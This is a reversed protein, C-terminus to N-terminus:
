QALGSRHARAYHGGGTRAGDAAVAQEGPGLRDDAPGASAPFSLLAFGIWAVVWATFPPKGPKM